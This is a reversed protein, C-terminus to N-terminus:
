EHHQPSWALIHNSLMVILRDTIFGLSGIIIMGVGIARTDSFASKSSGAYAVRAQDAPTTAQAFVAGPALFLMAAALVASKVFKM